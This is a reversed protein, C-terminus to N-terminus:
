KSSFAHNIGLSIASMDQGTVPTSGLGTDSILGYGANADNGVQTYLAYVETNKSLAQSVGVSVQSGGTNNCNTGGCDDIKAYALKLTTDGMKHAVDLYYANQDAVTGGLDTNEYILGLTTADMITYTGGLKWATADKAGAAGAGSGLKNLSEYAAVVSLPGNMYNGSLSYADQDTTISTQPLNDSGVANSLIYAVAGTFGNLDPTVYALTNNVLLDHNMGMIANYDAVTNAFIDMSQTSSQYPTNLKGALVTGFGGALAVFTQSDVNTTGFGNNGAGASDFQVGQEFQWLASLGNGLDEDGRFGIYSTNSSLGVKTDENPSVANNNVYDVSVRAEGYVEVGAQAAFPAALAAAIGIALLKKNM